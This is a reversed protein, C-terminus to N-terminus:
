WIWGPIDRLIENIKKARFLTKEASLIAKPTGVDLYIGKHVVGYIPAGDKLALKISDTIQYEGKAGPKTKKIYEFIKSNLVLGGSIAYWTDGYRYKQATSKDPKEVMDIIKGNEIMRVVGYRLPNKVPYLLITAFAKEKEHKEILRKMTSKPELITDGYVVAFNEEPLVIHESCGIANALGRPVEQSVYAVKIKLYNAIANVYDILAGKKEGTVIVINSIGGAQLCKIAHAILPMGAVQAMEKPIAKTLPFLRSGRGAAPIVGKMNNVEM